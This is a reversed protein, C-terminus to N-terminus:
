ARRRARLWGGGVALLAFAGAAYTSPEPVVDWGILDLARVDAATILSLEAFNLTPDMLGISLGDKWHSAQDGDGHDV